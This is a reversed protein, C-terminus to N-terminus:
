WPEESRQQIVTESISKEVPKGRKSIDSWKKQSRGKKEDKYKNMLYEAYDLIERKIPEPLDHLEEIRTM